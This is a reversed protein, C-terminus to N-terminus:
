VLCWRRRPQCPHRLYLLTLLVKHVSLIERPRGDNALVPRKRDVRAALRLPRRKELEPLVEFLLDALVKPHLGFLAKVRSPSFNNLHKFNM